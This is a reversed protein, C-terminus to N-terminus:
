EPTFKLGYRAVGETSYIRRFRGVVRDGVSVADPECDTLQVPFRATEGEVAIEVIAVAFPGDRRQLEVFEPPAGGQGITTVAVVEGTRPLEVDTFTVREHCRPCAGEPPFAIAGCEPCQGAVLRYRQPVTRQWSPLSVHAGGGAVDTEGLTGRERLAITYSVDTGGDVVEDVGTTLSERTEFALATATAGSGFFGAVTVSGPDSEDLAALLGLAPTATGADGVEDVLTGREVIEGGYPLARAIRHPIDPTPQYFSTGTVADHDVDLAEVSAAVLERIAGREYTTIGPEAVTESGRERFRIGPADRSRTAMDVLTVAGDDAFLFAAAGAGVRQGVEAPDGVPADAVVALAPADATAASRLADAGAATSQTATELRCDDALGLAEAAQPAFEGEELPPTTTALGVHGVDDAAVASDELADRAAAVAMTLTDEDAAPVAARSVPASTGWADRIEDGSLRQRPVYVGTSVLGRHSSM